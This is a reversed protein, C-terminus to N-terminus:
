RLQGADRRLRNEMLDQGLNAGVYVLTVTLWTGADILRLYLAVTAAVWALFKKSAFGQLFRGWDWRFDTM